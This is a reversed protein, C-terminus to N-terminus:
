MCKFYFTLSGATGTFFKLDAQKNKELCHGKMKQIMRKHLGAEETSVGYVSDVILGLEDKYLKKQADPVGHISACSTFIFLFALITIPRILMCKESLKLFPLKTEM